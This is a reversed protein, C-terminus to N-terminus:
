RDFTFESDRWERYVETASPGYVEAQMMSEFEAQLSKRRLELEYRVDSALMFSDHKDALELLTRLKSTTYRTLYSM